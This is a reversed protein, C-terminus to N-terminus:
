GAAMRRSPLKRPTSEPSANEVPPVTKKTPKSASTDANESARARSVMSEGVFEEAAATLIRRAELYAPHVPLKKDPQNEVFNIFTEIGDAGEIFAFKGRRAAACIAQRVSLSHPLKSWPPSVRLVGLSHGEMTSCRVVRADLELHNIVWVYKGVLDNRNGLIENSYRGNVFNVFPARGQDAGGKVKCRKRYSVLQEVLENDARRVKTDPRSLAFQLYQLPSRDNLNSHGKANYNAILVDLLEEAYEYQFRSSLAIKDPNRGKKDKPDKGTTNSLRQFGRSALTRFFTEIFPRDDKSRRISFSTHPELLESGVVDKLKSRVTICTQALAGDVSTEDWCLGIWDDRVGSPLAASPAYPVDSFHIDRPTWKTLAKKIASLVDDKSVERRLSFHYGLVARSVVDLIVIVWLRHVIKAVSSGDLQPMEVSFRGDLKHADMEVREFVRRVPRDVGDGSKLKQELDPGGAARAQARPHQALVAKIHRYVAFYGVRKTNFPWENRIEYGKARLQKVFWSAHSRPTHLESLKEDGTNRLIRNLFAKALKPERELLLTMAGAAGHGDPTVDFTKARYYPQIREYRVLGRWGYVQGDPHVELCRESILRYIQKAGIGVTAQIVEFSEGRLYMRVGDRRALFQARANDDLAGTDPTVWGSTDIHAGKIKRVSSEADDKSGTEM